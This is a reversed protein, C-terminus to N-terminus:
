ASHLLRAASARNPVARPTAVYAFEAVMPKPGYIRRSLFVQLSSNQLKNNHLLAHRTTGVYHTDPGTGALAM